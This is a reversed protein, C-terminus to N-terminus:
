GGGYTTMLNAYAVNIEQTKRHALAKLELGLCAVMDPHYKKVRRRLAAKIRAPNPHGKLGLVRRDSGGPADLPICREEGEECYWDEYIEEPSPRLRWELRQELEQIRAQLRDQDGLRDGLRQNKALLQAVKKELAATEIEQGTTTKLRRELKRVQDRHENLQHTFDRNEAALRTARRALEKNASELRIVKETQRELDQHRAQQAIRQKSLTQNETTLKKVTAALAQNAVEMKLSREMLGDLERVMEGHGNLRDVLRQNDVALRKVEQGLRHNQSEVRALLARNDELDQVMQGYGNMQGDLRNKEETLLELKKQMVRNVITLQNTKERQRELDRALQGHVLLQSAQKQNDIRLRQTTQELAGLQVALLTNEKAARQLSDNLDEKEAHVRLLQTGSEANSARLAAMETELSLLSGLLEKESGGPIGEDLFFAQGRQQIYGSLEQIKDRFTAPHGNRMIVTEYFFEGAGEQRVTFDMHCKHCSKVVGVDAEGLIAVTECTFCRARFFRNKKDVLVVREVTHRGPSDYVLCKRNGVIEITFGMRCHPCDFKWFTIAIPHTVTLSKGCCRCTIALHQSKQSTHLMEQGYRLWDGTHPKKQKIQANM